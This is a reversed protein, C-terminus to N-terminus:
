DVGHKIAARILSKIYGQKNGQRELAAIIDADTRRNLKVVVRTINQRQYAEVYASQDFSKM